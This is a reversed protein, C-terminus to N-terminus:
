CSPSASSRKVFMAVLFWRRREEEKAGTTVMATQPLITVVYQFTRPQLRKVVGDVVVILPAVRLDVFLGGRPLPPMLESVLSLAEEVQDKPSRALNEM